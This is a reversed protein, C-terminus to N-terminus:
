QIDRLSLHARFQSPYIPIFQSPHVKDKQIPEYLLQPIPPSLMEDINMTDRIAAKQRGSLGPYIIENDDDDDDDDDDTDDDILDPVDTDSTASHSPM